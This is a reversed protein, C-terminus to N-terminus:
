CSHAPPTPLIVTEGATLAAALPSATLKSLLLHCEVILPLQFVKTILHLKWHGWRAAYLRPPPAGLSPYGSCNCPGTGGTGTSSVTM